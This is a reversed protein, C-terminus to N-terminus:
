RLVFSKTHQLEMSGFQKVAANSSSQVTATNTFVNPGNYTNGNQQRFSLGVNVRYKLGDMIKVEGYLSNFTSFRRQRSLIADKRTKLTLPSVLAADISGFAPNLNVTGDTNYPSALPTLKVLGSSVDGGPNNTYGLTNITNLGIRVWRSVQHDLTARVSYREFKQNPIIGTTNYYGGSLGYQTSETGGSLSLRQDTTFGQKYILDQWDTSVGAALAAKEAATLAYSTTGPSTRNYTTADAKFQAYQPGNYTKYKGIANSIGYYGDYSLVGKGAKGRRTTILIVGGAGRSGYIATASADKLVEVGAIDNPDIDNISGGFPIGDVVLLPGDLADSNGQSNTITRNGRIRIQGSAGPTTSNSVIDVGATRGKLQDVLNPSPVEKLTTSTVSAVSGTIDRKRQTGYGVVIVQDLANSSAALIIDMTSRGSVRITAATYGVSSVALTADSPVNIEFNGAEDTTAAIRGNRQQVTAKPVPQGGESLVRGKVHITNQASLSPLFFFTALLCVAAILVKRM